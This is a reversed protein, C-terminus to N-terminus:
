KNEFKFMVFVSKMKWEFFAEYDYFEDMELDDTESGDEREVYRYGVPARNSETEYEDEGAESDVIVYEYDFELPQYDTFDFMQPEQSTTDRPVIIVITESQNSEVDSDIEIEIEIDNETDSGTESEEFITPLDIVNRVNFDEDIVFTPKKEVFERM